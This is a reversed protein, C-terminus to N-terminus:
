RVRLSSSVRQRPSSGHARHGTRGVRGAGFDLAEVGKGALRSGARRKPGERRFVGPRAKRGFAELQDGAAVEDRAQEGPLGSRRRLGASSLRSEQEGNMVGAVRHARAVDEGRRAPDARLEGDDRDIEREVAVAGTGLQGFAEDGPDGPAFAAAVEIAVACPEDFFEPTLRRDVQHAGEVRHEGEVREVRLADSQEADAEAGREALRQHGVVGPRAGGHQDM